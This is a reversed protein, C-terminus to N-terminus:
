THLRMAIGIPARCKVVRVAVRTAQGLIKDIECDPGTALFDHRLNSKYRDFSGITTLNVSVRRPYCAGVPKKGTAGEWATFPFFCRCLFVRSTEGTVISVSSNSATLRSKRRVIRAYAARKSSSRASFM